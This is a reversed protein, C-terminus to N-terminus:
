GFYVGISPYIGLRLSSVMWSNWLLTDRTWRHHYWILDGISKSLQNCCNYIILAVLSLTEAKNALPDQYPKKLVHHITVLFCASVMCVMRLMLNAIFAQCSLLFFRRGILVSRWYLTGNDERNPRRFPGHLIELVDRNVVQAQANTSDRRRRSRKFIDKISWYFLFLFSILCAALFDSASISAKYIKFSGYFLVSIFPVVFVIIYVLVLYQWWQMCPVTADIFFWKGSGISVCHM